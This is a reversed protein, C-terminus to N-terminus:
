SRDLPKRGRRETRVAMAWSIRIYEITCTLKYHHGVGYPPQAMASSLQVCGQGLKYSVHQADKNANM